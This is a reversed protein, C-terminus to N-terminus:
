RAQTAARALPLRLSKLLAKLRRKLLLRADDTAHLLKVALACRTTSWVAGRPWVNGPVPRCLLRDLRRATGGAVLSAADSADSLTAVRWSHLATATARDPYACIRAVSARRHGAAGPPADHSAAQLLAALADRLDACYDAPAGDLPQPGLLPVPRRHADFTFRECSPAQFGALAEVVAQNFVQPEWPLFTAANAATEAEAGPELSFYFGSVRVHPLAATIAAQLRGKWGMDVVLVHRSTPRLQAAYYAIAAEGAARDERTAARGSWRTFRPDERAALVPYSSARSSLVYRGHRGDLFGPLRSLAQWLSEGDRSLFWVDTAQLRRAQERLALAFDALVVAWRQALTARAAAAADADRRPADHPTRLAHLGLSRAHAPLWANDACWRQRPWLTQVGRVGARRARRVDVEVNDGVHLVGERGYRRLLTEFALGSRKPADTESSCLVTAPCPLARAVVGRIFAAPLYTDSLVVIDKGARGLQALVQAVDEYPAIVGREIELEQTLLAATAEESWGRRRRIDGYVDALQIEHPAAERALRHETDKRECLWEDQPMPPVLGAGTFWRHQLRFVDTPDALRRYVLTDFLDVSVARLTPTRQVLDLLERAHTLRM